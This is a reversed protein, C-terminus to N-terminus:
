IAGSDAASWLHGMTGAPDALTRFEPHEIAAQTLTVFVHDIPMLTKEQFKVKAYYGPASETSYMQRVANVNQPPYDPDLLVLYIEGIAAAQEENKAVVMQTGVRSRSVVAYISLEPYTM